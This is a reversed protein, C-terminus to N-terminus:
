MLSWKCGKHFIDRCLHVKHTTPNFCWYVETGREYGVFIMEKSRDELKGLAEPAKVYVISGFIRPHTLKPKKRSWMEYPMKGQLSKILSRNSMYVCFNIAQGWLELPLSKDKLMSKMLGM